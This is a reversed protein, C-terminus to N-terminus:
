VKSSGEELNTPKLLRKEKELARFIFLDVQPDQNRKDRLKEFVARAKEELNFSLLTMGYHQLIPVSEEIKLAKELYTLSEELKGQKFCVWGLADLINALFEEPAYQLADKAIKEATKLEEGMDALTLATGYAAIAHGYDTSLSQQMCALTVLADEYNKLTREAEMQLTFAICQLIESTEMERLKFSVKIVEEWRKLSYLAVSMSCLFIPNDPFKKVLSRYNSLAAKFKKEKMMTEAQHFLVVSSEDFEDLNMEAKPQDFSLAQQYEIKFPNILLAQSFAEKAKRNWGRKLYVFGLMYYADEMEADMAIAQELNDKAKKFVNQEKYGIGLLYYAQAQPQIDLSKELYPRAQDYKEESSYVSGLCLLAAADRPNHSIVRDLLNKAQDFKDQSYYVVALMFLSDIHNPNSKLASKLFYEQSGKELEYAMEALFYALEYNESDLQLAKELPESFADINGSLIQFEADDILSQFRSKKDPEGRYLATFRNKMQAFRDRIQAEEMQEAITSEWHEKLRNEKLQGAENLTEILATLGSRTIFGNRDVLELSEAFRALHDLINSVTDELNSIRELFHDELSFPLPAYEDWKQNGGLVLLKTGCKRCYESEMSNATNCAQCLIM